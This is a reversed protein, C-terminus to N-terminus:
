LRNGHHNMIAHRCTRDSHETERSSLVPGEYRRKQKELKRRQKGHGEKGRTADKRRVKDPLPDHATTGM